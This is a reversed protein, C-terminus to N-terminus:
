LHGFYNKMRKLSVVVTWRSYDNFVSILKVCALGEHSCSLLGYGSGLMNCCGGVAVYESTQLAEYISQWEAVAGATIINNKRTFYTFKNMSIIFGTSGITSYGRFCHGGYKVTVPVNVKHTVQLCGKIDHTDPSVVIFRYHPNYIKAFTKYKGKNPIISIGKLEDLADQIPNNEEWISTMRFSCIM